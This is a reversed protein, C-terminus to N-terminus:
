FKEKLKLGMKISVQQDSLMKVPKQGGGSTTINTSLKAFNARKINQFRENTVTAFTESHAPATVIGNADVPAAACITQRGASFLSDFPVGDKQTLFYIQTNLAMPLGNDSVIKFEVEEFDKKGVSKFDDFVTAVDLTQDAGFDVASGELGLELTMFFRLFSSDTVFGRINPDNNPNAVATVDYEVKIPQLAILDAINSNSEDFVFSQKKSQGVEGAALSPYVFDIGGGHDDLYQSKLEKSEGLQNTFKLSKIIARSPFGFSSEMSSILKAKTLHINGHLSTQNLAVEITGKDLNFTQNAWYGEVYSFNNGLSFVYCAGLRVRNGNSKRYAFYRYQITDNPSVLFKGKLDFHPTTLSSVPGMAFPVKFVTGDANHMQRIEWYGTISDPFNSDMSFWVSGGSLTAKKIHLDAGTATNGLNFLTDFMPIIITQNANPTVPAVDYIKKTTTPAKYYLTMTKDANFLLTDGAVDNNLLGPVLDKLSFNTFFVPFAFESTHGGIEYNDPNLKSCGMWVAVTLLLAFRLLYSLKM